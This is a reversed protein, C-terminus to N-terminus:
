VLLSPFLSVLYFSVDFSSGHGGYRWGQVRHGLQLPWDPGERHFKDLLDKANGLPEAPECSTRIHNYSAWQILYQLQRYHWRSNLTCDVKLKEKEEVIMPHPESSPQRGVPLTYRDLIRLYLTNLNRMTSLSDLKYANKNIIKNETYPGTHKYDLKKSPRFTKLNSTLLWVKDGVVFKM